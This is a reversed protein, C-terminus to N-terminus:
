DGAVEVGLDLGVVLDEGANRAEDDVGVVEHLTQLSVPEQAADKLLHVAFRIRRGGGHWGCVDLGSRGSLMPLSEANTPHDCTTKSNLSQSRHHAVICCQM